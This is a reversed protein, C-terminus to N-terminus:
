LGYEEFIHRKTKIGNRDIQKLYAVKDEKSLPLDDILEAQEDCTAEKSDAILRPCQSKPFDSLCEKNDLIVRIKQIAWNYPFYNIGAFDYAIAFASISLPDLDNLVFHVIMKMLENSQLCRQVITLFPLKEFLVEIDKSWLFNIVDEIPCPEIKEMDPLVITENEKLNAVTTSLKGAISKSIGYKKGRFSIYADHIPAFTMLNELIKNEIEFNTTEQIIPKWEIKINGAKLKNIVVDRNSVQLVTIPIFHTTIEVFNRIFKNDIIKSVANRTEERNAGFFVFSTKFQETSSVFNLTIEKNQVMIHAKKYVAAAAYSAPTKLRALASRFDIVGFKTKYQFMNTIECPVNTRIIESLEIQTTGEPLGEIFLFSYDM